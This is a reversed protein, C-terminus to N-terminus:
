YAPQALPIVLIKMSNYGESYFWDLRLNIPGKGVNYQGYQEQTKAILNKSAPFLQAPTLQETESDLLLVLYNGYLQISQLCRKRLDYGFTKCVRQETDPVDTGSYDPAIKDSSKIWYGGGAMFDSNTIRYHGGRWNERTYLEVGDGASAYPGYMWEYGVWQYIMMSKGHDLSLQSSLNVCYQAGAASQCNFNKCPWFAQWYKTGRYDSDNFVTVGWFPGKNPDPGNVIRISEVDDYGYWDYPSNDIGVIHLPPIIDDELKCGEKPYLYVGPVEKQIIFSEAQPWMNTKGGCELRAYQEKIKTLGKKDYFYILYAAHPNKPDCASVGDVESPWEILYDRINSIDVSVPPCPLRENGKVLYLMPVGRLQEEVKLETLKPTITQLIVYSSLLLVVGLLAGKMRAMANTRTEPNEAATLYRLAGIAFGLIALVVGIEIGLTFISKIYDPLEIKGSTPLGPLPIELTRAFCSNIDLLSILSIVSFLLLFSKYILLKIKM